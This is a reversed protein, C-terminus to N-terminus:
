HSIQMRLCKQSSSFCSSVAKQPDFHSPVLAPDVVVLRFHLPGAFFPAMGAWWFGFFETRLCRRSFHNQLEEPIVLNWKGSTCSSWDGTGRMAVLWWMLIAYVAWYPESIAAHCRLAASVKCCSLRDPANVIKGEEMRRVGTVEGRTVALDKPLELLSQTSLSESGTFFHLLRHM